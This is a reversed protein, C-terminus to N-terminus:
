YRLNSLLWISYEWTTVSPRTPPYPICVLSCTINTDNQVMPDRIAYKTRLPCSKIMIEKEKPCLRNGACETINSLETACIRSVDKKKKNNKKNINTSTNNNNYNNQFYQFCQSLQKLETSCAEALATQATTTSLSMRILRQSLSFWFISNIILGKRPNSM